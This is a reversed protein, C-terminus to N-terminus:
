KGKFEEWKCIEKWAEENNKNHIRIIHAMDQQTIQDSEWRWGKKLMANWFMQESPYVWKKDPNENKEDNKENIRPISSEERTTSLLFPQGPSPQQNPKPM